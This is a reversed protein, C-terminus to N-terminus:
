RVSRSVATSTRRQAKRGDPPRPEPATLDQLEGLSERMLRALAGPDDQAVWRGFAVQFVTIGSQAALTAAPEAVGRERLAAAAEEGMSALKILERERLERSSAIIAARRRAFAHREAFFRGGIAELGASIAGIPAADVPAGRVAAVFEEVLLESGMFLVERKDAFHRFFTRKTLGAREAIDAITTAEYGREAFLELAATQLRGVADPQWRM